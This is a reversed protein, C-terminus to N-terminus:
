RRPARTGNPAAPPPVPSATRPRSRSAEAHEVRSPHPQSRPTNRHVTGDPGIRRDRCPHDKAVGCHPCPVGLSDPLGKAVAAQRATRGPRFPALAAQVDSPIPSGVSQLYAGIDASRSAGTTLQRHPSPAETGAAVAQRNASLAARYAAPDDPDAAPIPDTHRALQDRQYARWQRIIDAPQIRYPSTCIHERAAKSADWGHETTAPVDHLLEHWRSIEDRAENADSHATRPDLKGIYALLVAIEPRNM